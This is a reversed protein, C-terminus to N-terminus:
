GVVIEGVGGGILALAANNLELIELQVAPAEYVVQVEARNDM